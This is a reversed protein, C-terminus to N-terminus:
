TNRMQRSAQYQRIVPVVVRAKNNKERIDFEPHEALYSYEEPLRYVELGSMPLMNQLVQQEPCPMKEVAGQQMAGVWHPLFRNVKFCCRFWMINAVLEFCERYYVAIDADLMHFLKAPAVIEADADIWVVAHYGQAAYKKFQMQIFLPKHRVAQLFREGPVESFEQDMRTVDYDEGYADLSRILRSAVEQYRPTYYSIWKIRM